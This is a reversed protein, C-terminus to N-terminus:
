TELWRWAGVEMPNTGFGQGDRDVPNVMMLDCGKALRKVKLGSWCIPM